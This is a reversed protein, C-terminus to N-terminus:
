LLIDIKQDWEEMPLDETWQCAYGIGCCCPRPSLSAIYRDYFGGGYGLREGSKGFALGPVLLLDEKTPVVEEGGMPEPIGRYGPVPTGGAFFRLEKGFVKPYAVRKGLAMAKEAIAQTPFESGYSAYLFVTKAKQFAPLAFLRALVAKEETERQYLSLAARREKMKKRLAIKDM